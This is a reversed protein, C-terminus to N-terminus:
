FGTRYMPRTHCAQRSLKYLSSTSYSIEKKLHDFGSFPRSIASTHNADMM